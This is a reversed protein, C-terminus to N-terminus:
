VIAGVIPFGLHEHGRPHHDSSQMQPVSDPQTDTASKLNGRSVKMRIVVVSDEGDAEWELPFCITTPRLSLRDM